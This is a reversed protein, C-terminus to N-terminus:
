QSANLHGKTVKMVTEARSGRPVSVPTTERLQIRVLEETRVPNTVTM